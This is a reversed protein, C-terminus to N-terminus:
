KLFGENDFSHNTMPRDDYDDREDPWCLRCLPDDCDTVDPGQDCRQLAM